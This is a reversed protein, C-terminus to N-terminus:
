KKKKLASIQSKIEALKVNEPNVEKLKTHYKEAADVDELMLATQILLDLNRPNNPELKIAEQFCQMAQNPMNDLIYVEGLAIHYGSIQKSLSVVSVKSDAQPGTEGETESMKILHSYIEKAHTYEKMRAYVAALGEYAPICKNDLSIAEIYKNEAEKYKEEDAFIKAETVLLEKKKSSEATDVPKKIRIRERYQQEMNKVVTHFRKFISLQKQGSARLAFRAMVKRRLRNEILGKKIRQEKNQQLISINIAAIVPFKKAIIYVIVGLAFVIIIIAIYDLIM